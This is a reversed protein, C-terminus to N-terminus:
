ETAEKELSGPLSEVGALEAEERSEPLEAIGFSEPLTPSRELMSFPDDTGLWREGPGLLYEIVQATVGRAQDDGIVAQHVDLAALHGESPFLVTMMALLLHHGKAGLPEDAAEQEVHEGLAKSASAMIAEQATTVASGLQRERRTVRGPISGRIRSVFGGKLGKGM